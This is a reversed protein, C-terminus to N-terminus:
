AIEVRWGAERFAAVEDEGVGPDTLIAAHRRSDFWYPFLDNREFKTHDVVAWAQRSREAMARKVLVQELDPYNLGNDVDAADAGVFAIDPTVDGLAEPVRPGIFSENPRRLRGGLVIVEVAADALAVLSSLGNTMITIDDRDALAHAIWGCTTGADLLVLDGPQVMQAARAAIQQKEARQVLAKDQWSSEQPKGIVAGGHTRQVDGRAQLYALDRRITSTSVGFERALDHVNVEGENLLDLLAFRRNKTAKRSGSAM